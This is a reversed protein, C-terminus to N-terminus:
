KVKIKLERFNSVGHSDTWIVRVTYKGAAAYAHGVSFAVRDPTSQAPPTGDGWDVTLSLVDGPDGDVLRGTLTATQGVAVKTELALHKAAPFFPDPNFVIPVTSKNLQLTEIGSYSVTVSNGVQRTVATATVGYLHGTTSGQDNVQLFDGGGFGGNVTVPGRITDLTNGTSGISFFDGGGLGNITVPVSIGSTPTSRVFFADAFDSGTLTVSRVDNNVYQINADALGSVTGLGSTGATHDLTVAHGTGNFPIAARSDSVNLATRSGTNTVFVKGKINATGFISGASAGVNVTDQGNQGNVTLQGGTRLVNVTDAGLGADITTVNGASTAFTGDVTFTNGFRGGRVTVGSTDAVKYRIQEPALGDITGFGNAVALRVDQSGSAASGDVILNTFSGANSVEIESDIGELSGNNGIRVTDRGSTGEISLLPASSALVNVTDAGGGTDIFTRGVDGIPFRFVSSTDLVTITDAGAGTEVSFDFLLDGLLGGTEYTIPFQTLGSVTGVGGVVNMTVNRGTPDASDDLVVTASIGLSLPALIGRMDGANGVIVTDAGDLTVARVTALINIHSFGDVTIGQTISADPVAIGNVLTSTGSHSLTLNDSSGGEIELVGGSLTTSVSPMERGELVEFRPRASARRRVAKPAPRFVRKLLREVLSKQM